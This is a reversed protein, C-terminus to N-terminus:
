WAIYEHGVGYGELSISFSQVRVPEYFTLVDPM